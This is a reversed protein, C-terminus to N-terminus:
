DILEDLRTLVPPVPPDGIVNGGDPYEPRPPIEPSLDPRKDPGRQNMKETM